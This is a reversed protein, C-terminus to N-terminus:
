WSQVANNLYCQELLIKVILQHVFLLQRLMHCCTDVNKIFCAQYTNYFCRKESITWEDPTTRVFLNCCTTWAKNIWEDISFLMGRVSTFLITLLGQQCPAACCQQLKNQWTPVLQCGAVAQANKRTYISIRFFYSIIFNYLVNTKLIEVM